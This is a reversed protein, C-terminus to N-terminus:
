PRFVSWHGVAKEINAVSYSFHSVTRNTLLM